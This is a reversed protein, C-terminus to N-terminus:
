KCKGDLEKKYINVPGLKLPNCSQKQLTGNIKLTPNAFGKLVKRLFELSLYAGFYMEGDKEDKEFSINLWIFDERNENEFM